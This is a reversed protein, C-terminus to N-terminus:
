ELGSGIQASIQGFNICLFGCNPRMKILSIWNLVSRTVVLIDSWSPGIKFLDNRGFYIVVM